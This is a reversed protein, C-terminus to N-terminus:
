LEIGHARAYWYGLSHFALSDGQLVNLMWRLESPMVGDPDAFWKLHEKTVEAYIAHLRARQAASDKPDEQILIASSIGQRERTGLWCIPLTANHMMFSSRWHARPKISVPLKEWDGTLTNIRIFYYSLLDDRQGILSHEWWRHMGRLYRDRNAPELEALIEGGMVIQVHFSRDETSIYSPRGLGFMTERPTPIAGYLADLRKFEDLCEPEGTVEYAMRHIVAWCFMHRQARPNSEELNWVEGFFNIRYNTRWRRSVESFMQKIRARTEPPAIKWYHYLGYLAQFHQETSTHDTAVGYYPKCFFGNEKTRSAPTSDIIGAKQNPGATSPDHQETLRYNADLSGFARKAYELAVPDKTAEYRYCQAALFVGSIFPSNEYSMWQHPEPGMLSSDTPKFDAAIFPREEQWNIHSYMLGAPDYYHEHVFRDLCAIREAVTPLSDLKALPKQEAALLTGTLVVGLAVFRLFQIVPKM